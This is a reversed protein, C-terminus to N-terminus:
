RAAAVAEDLEDDLTACTLCKGYHKIYSPNAALLYKCKNTHYRRGYGTIAIDLAEVLDDAQTYADITRPRLLFRLFRVLIKRM